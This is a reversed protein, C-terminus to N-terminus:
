ALLITKLKKGFERVKRFIENGIDNIIGVLCEIILITFMSFLQFFFPVTFVWINAVLNWLRTM